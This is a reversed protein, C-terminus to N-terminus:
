ASMRSTPYTANTHDGSSGPKRYQGGMESHAAEVELLLTSEGLQAVTTKGIDEERTLTKRDIDGELRGALPLIMSEEDLVDIGVTHRM